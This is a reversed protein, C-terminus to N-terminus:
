LLSMFEARAEPNTRLVGQVASTVTESGQKAIGRSEMCLHRAKIICGCGRPQLAAQLTDTVQTTLREQVQLRRAYIDLLRSLKSLGVIKKDPLYAITATGFFPAIHHECHSYFPIDRVVIMQNYSEGGDDFTKLIDTPNVIAYGSFWHRWAKIVRKPTEKLGGREVNEGIFELLRVVIDDASSEISNEWPFVLWQGKFDINKHFLPYFPKSYGLAYESCTRGSDYIDDIFFDAKTPKDVIDFRIYQQVIYAAPIGGRPIPYCKTGPQETKIQYATKIAQERVDKDTLMKFSSM